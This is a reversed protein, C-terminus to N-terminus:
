SVSKASDTLIKNEKQVDGSRQSLAEYVPFFNILAIDSIDFRGFFDGMQFSPRNVWKYAAVM